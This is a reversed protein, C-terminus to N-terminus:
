ALKTKGPIAVPPVDVNGFGIKSPALVETSNM